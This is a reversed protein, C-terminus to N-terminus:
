LASWVCVRVCARTRARVHAGASMCLSTEAEPCVFLLFCIFLLSPCCSHASSPLNCITPPHLSRPPPPTTESSGYHRIQTQKQEGRREGLNLYHWPLFIWPM